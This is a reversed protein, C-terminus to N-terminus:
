RLKWAFFGLVGGFALGVWEAMVFGVGGGIATLAWWPLYIRRPRKRSPKAPETM